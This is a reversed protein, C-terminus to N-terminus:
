AAKKATKKAAPKSLVKTPKAEEAAAAAPLAAVWDMVTLVPNYLKGYKKHKYSQSSLAVVAIPSKAGGKAFHTQFEEALEGFAAKGGYSTTSYVLKVGGTVASFGLLPKWEGGKAPAPNTTPIPPLLQDMPALVEGLLESSVGPLDTDAWLQWGHVFGNPDIYVHDDEGVVTDDQGYSWEGDKSMKLFGARPAAGKKMNGITVAFKNPDFTVVNSSM